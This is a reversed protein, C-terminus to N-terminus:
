YSFSAYRTDDIESVRAGVRRETAVHVVNVRLFDIGLEEAMDSENNYNVNLLV